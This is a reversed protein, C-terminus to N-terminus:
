ARGREGGGRKRMQSDTRMGTHGEGRREDVREDSCGGRGVGHWFVGPLLQLGDGHVSPPHRARLLLEHSLGCLLRHVPGRVPAGAGPHVQGPTQLM